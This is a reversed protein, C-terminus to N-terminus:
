SGRSMSPLAAQWASASPTQTVVLQPARLGEKSSYYAVDASSGAIAFAITGDGTVVATVDFEVWTNVAVAGASGLVDGLEPRTSWTVASESWGSDPVAHLVGGSPSADTVYLRLTASNVTGTIGSVAFKLYSRTERTTGSKYARLSKASGNNETPYRSRVYADGQVVSTPASTGPSRVDITVTAATSASRGDSARYSFADRGTFVVSPTYEFAGDANLTLAGNAPDSVKVATLPNREPDTDNGLVGPAAVALTGGAAM